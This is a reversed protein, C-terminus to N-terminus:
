AHDAIESFWYGSVYPLAAATPEALLLAGSHIM